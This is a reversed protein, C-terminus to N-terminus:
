GEHDFWLEYTGGAGSFALVGGEASARVTQTGAPCAARWVGPKVGAVVIKYQGRGPLEFRIYEGFGAREKAFLVVRDAVLAGVATDTELLEVALPACDPEADGVQLVNLFSDEKRATKPSLEARWGGGENFRGPTVAAYYDTGNVVAGEVKGIVTDGKHPLLVDATLKGNAGHETNKFVIRNEGLEPEYLGHLLWTKKFGADSSAIRDFVVLAAPHATDKLNWFLFSRQYSTVKDSYARTLDGSLYTYEPCQKDSGFELGLIDCTKLAPNGLMDQLLNPEEADGILMQGGDNDAQKTSYRFQEDPDFVLMCNHAVTRKNYNIDHLSGYGTSGNNGDSFVKDMSAQYYGSDTALMGKYYIQFAGADLHQHNTFWWENIKMEAVVTPADPGEEWGTRAIVAGKPSPFYKTLPLTEVSKGPLDPDNLLLIEASSITQNAKPKHPEMGPLQRMAEWKLYPDRYYNAIHLMPRCYETYFQGEVMNRDNNDDGDRLIAGDPRRAYLGWYMVYQQDGGFVNPAGIKDMIWTSLAEWQVRYYTYHSGQSFHHARYMLRRPGIFEAFFRGAVLTYIDPYEDYMAIGACMLDRLVQGEPGHGVVARQKVPPWGVEMMGALEITKQYFAERDATTLLSHCWDYVEAITFVTQGITNYSYGDVSFYISEVVERMLEVARLGYAEGGGLAYELAFSEIISMIKSDFNTGAYADGFVAGGEYSINEKHVRWAAANQPKEANQLIRPIDARTFYVRPHGAPPVVPPAPYLMDYDKTM